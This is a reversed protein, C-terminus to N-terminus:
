SIRSVTGLLTSVPVLTIWLFSWVTVVACFGAEREQPGADPTALWRLAFLEAVGLACAFLASLSIYILFFADRLGRRELHDLDEEAAAVEESNLTRGPAYLGELADIRQRMSAHAERLRPRANNVEVVAVLLVVPAVGAVATAFDGTMRM